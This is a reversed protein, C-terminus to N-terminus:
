HDWGHLQEIFHAFKIGKKDPFEENFTYDRSIIDTEIKLTTFLQTHPLSLKCPECECESEQESSSTSQNDSDTNNELYAMFSFGEFCEDIENMLSRVYMADKMKSALNVLDSYFYSDDCFCQCPVQSSFLCCCKQDSNRLLHCTFKFEGSKFEGAKFEGIPYTSTHFDLRVTLNEMVLTGSDFFEPM